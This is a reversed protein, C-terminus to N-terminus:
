PEPSPPANEGDEDQSQTSTQLAREQREKLNVLARELVNVTWHNLSTGAKQAAEAAMVKVDSPMRVLVKSISNSDIVLTRGRGIDEGLSVIEPLVRPGDQVLRLRSDPALQANIEDALEQLADRAAAEVLPGSNEIFQELIQRREPNEILALTKKQAAAIRRLDFPM